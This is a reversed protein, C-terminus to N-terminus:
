RLCVACAHKSVSRRPNQQHVHRKPVTVDCVLHRSHTRRSHSSVLVGFAVYRPPASRGLAAARKIRPPPPANPSMSCGPPPHNVGLASSNSGSPPAQGGTRESVFQPCYHWLDCPAPCLSLLQWYTTGAGASGRVLRRLV